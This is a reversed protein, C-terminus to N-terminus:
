EDPLEPLLALRDGVATAAAAITGVRCELVASARRHGIYLRGPAVAGHLALVRLERDLLLVDFAFRMGISHISSCPRLLLAEGEALGPHGLLGRARQLWSDALRCRGAVVTARTENVIRFLRM